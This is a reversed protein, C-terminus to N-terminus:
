VGRNEIKRALKWEQLSKKKSYISTHDSFQKGNWVFENMELWICCVIAAVEQATKKHIFQQVREVIHRSQTMPPDFQLYRWCGKAKNFELFVHISDKAQDCRLCTLSMNIGRERLRTKVPFSNSPLRWTFNKVKPPRETKWMQKWLGQLDENHSNVGGKLYIYTSKM